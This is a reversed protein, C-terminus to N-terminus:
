IACVGAQGARAWAALPGHQNAAVFGLRNGNHEMVLPVRAAKEDPGGGYVPAQKGVYFALSELSAARGFDNLHNGSLGIADVGSLALNEWYENKSCLVLNNPNDNPVCDPVFPIENSITTIDAAALEPGVARALFGDDGSKEIAVASNRAMATVGTMVLVTLRTADRNTVPLGDLGEALAARGRETVGVLAARSTLPWEDAPFRNDVPSQGDLAIARLKVTLADFPVIGLGTEDGWLAAEIDDGPAQKVNAGPQGLLPILLAKTDQGVYISTFNSTTGAGTWVAVLEELTISQLVSSMRDVPTFVREWALVAGDAGANVLRLDAQDSVQEASVGAAELAELLPGAAELPADAAIGLGLPRRDQTPTPM